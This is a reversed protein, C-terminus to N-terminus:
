AVLPFRDERYDMIVQNVEPLPTMAGRVGAVVLDYSAEGTDMHTAREDYNTPDGVLHYRALRVAANTVPGPPSAYGHEYAIVINQRGKTWAPEYYATGEPELTVDASVDLDDLTAVLLATPRPNALVLDTKNRGNRTEKAYRPRFAVGAAKENEIKDEAWQRADNLEDTTATVGTPLDSNIAELTCLFGGVVEVETTFIQGATGGITATWVATLLEVDPIQAPTFTFAYIGTTAAVKTTAAATVVATGDSDKTITVTPLSDADVASGTSDFLTVRIESETDRLIRDM